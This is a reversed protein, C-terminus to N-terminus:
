TNSGDEERGGRHVFASLLPVLKDLERALAAFSEEVNTLKGEVAMIELESAHKFAGAAGFYRMSGKLTHAARRLDAANGAAMAERMAALLQPCEDLFAEAVVKLLDRDQKVTKLAESWNLVDEDPPSQDSPMQFEPSDGLVEEITKLLKAMRVPKAVYGDMGSDLCRQRDGKMAHATMAVIPIHRGTQRERVRIAATAELGDMEPMQVDMLVLDFGGAELAALAEKGNNAVVVRHGQRELLGVALKQNVLSDEALLVRLPRLRSPSAAPVAPEEEPSTVGLALMIADFLESEKVPKLVYLAIGLQRCRAVDDARDGSSLMLIVTGPWQGAQKIREALSFGDVEPMGADILILGYPEGSRDAEGLMAIAERAGAAAGPRMEWTRLMEELIGRSTANDDVVLVRTGRVHAPPMAEVEPTEGGPLGFRATFHFTSGQGATSELWIRGGMLEVLRASIALGLGTGGFKRTITNDVQEFADFIVTQKGEPVGIGTDAVAFHLVAENESQSACEVELVVEGRDTFKMANGVLNVVIQRLRSRDGAVFAPVDSRIRCALELGKRHARVALSKMTDGLNERLEFPACDLDLRGAEIKSFDLIDNILALLAESSEQVLTLYERQEASLPSDLVLETMGIIANMPTRIEHSMNALFASKARNATEAADKAQELQAEARKRDTVDWFIAQTGIVNGGADYVPSKMVQVYRTEGDKEYDEIDQFLVGTEAVRHDDQRYKQALKAPYFDFDTKGAIEDFRKGLLGCFSRNAFTFRGELDKRLVQVPLNEVLSSYLAESDRLGEEVRNRDTVERQLSENAHQLEATREVVLQEVQGTRGMLANVYMTLLATVLIGAALSALPLQTQHNALYTETAVCHVSWRRAPIELAAHFLAESSEGPYPAVPRLPKAARAYLERAEPAASEDFVYLDIELPDLEALAAEVLSGVRPVGLVFGLLNARRQDLSDIAAGQRYIPSIVFLGYEKERAPALRTKGTVVLGASDRARVLAERLAPESALDFGLWRTHKKAPELFFVPFWEARAEAPVLRGGEGRQRMRYGALGEDKATKEHAAREDATVRPAWALAEFDTYRGLLSESFERFESREVSQSGAYFTTLSYLVDVDQRLQRGISRVREQAELHFQAQTAQNDRSRLTQWGALSLALGAAAIGAVLWRRRHAPRREASREFVQQPHDDQSTEAM